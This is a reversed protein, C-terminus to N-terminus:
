PSLDRGGGVPMFVFPYTVVVVGGGEPPPFKWNRVAQVICDNVLQNNLTTEEVESAVVSGTAGITFMVRIEGGLTRDHRLQAEYCARVDQVHDRIVRRIIEKDLSGRKEAPIPASDLPGGLIGINAIGARKAIAMIDVASRNMVDRDGRILLRTSPRRSVWRRLLDEMRDPTVREGWLYLDGSKMVSLVPDQHNYPVPAGGPALSPLRVPPQGYGLPPAVSVALEEAGARKAAALVEDIRAQPTSQNADVLLARSGTQALAERLATELPKWGSMRSCGARATCLWTADSEVRVSPATQRLRRARTQDASATALGAVAWATSGTKMEPALALKDDLLRVKPGGVAPKVGFRGMPAYGPVSLTDGAVPAGLAPDLRLASASADGADGPADVDDGSEGGCALAVAGLAAVALGQLAVPWRRQSGLARLRARLPSGLAPFGLVHGLQGPLRNEALELLLEGYRRRAAGDAGAVAREDCAQEMLTRIRGAAIWLPLMPWALCCGVQLALALLPDRRQIHALEHRLIFARSQQDVPGDILAAPLVIRPRWVGAVCPGLTPHRWISAGPTITPLPAAERLQRRLRWRAIGLRMLLAVVGVGYALALWAGADWTPAAAVAATNVLVFVPEGPALPPPGASGPFLGLPSQWGAPLLLRGAVAMYLLLRWAASVRRALARDVLWAAALIAATALTLPLWAARLQHGFSSLASLVESAVSNM